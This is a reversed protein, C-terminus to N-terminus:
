VRGGQCLSFFYSILTLLDKSMMESSSLSLEEIICFKDIRFFREPGLAVGVAFLFESFFCDESSRFYVAEFGNVGRTFNM